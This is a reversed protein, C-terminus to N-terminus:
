QGEVQIQTKRKLKSHIYWTVFLDVYRTADSELLQDYMGLQELIQSAIVEERLSSDIEPSKM